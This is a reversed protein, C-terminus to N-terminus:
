GHRQHQFDGRQLQRQRGRGSFGPRDQDGPAPQRAAGRRYRGHLHTTGGAIVGSSTVGRVTIVNILKDSALDAPQITYNNAAPDSILYSRVCPNFVCSVGPPTTVAASLTIPATSYPGTDNLRVAIPGLKDDTLVVNTMTVRSINAVLYDYHVTQGVFAFWPTALKIITFPSYINTTLEVPFDVPGSGENATLTFVNVLEDPDGPQATYTYSATATEGPQLMDDHVGSSNAELDALVNRPGPASPSNSTDQAALMQYAVDSVNTVSLEYTIEDGIIALGPGTKQVLM